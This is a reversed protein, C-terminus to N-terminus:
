EVLGDCWAPVEGRQRRDLRESLVGAARPNNRPRPPLCDAPLRAITWSPNRSPVRLGRAAWARRSTARGAVGGHGCPRAALVATTTYGGVATARQRHPDDTLAGGALRTLGALVALGDSVGEIAGLAAAPAQLTSTAPSPLLAALVEHGVDVLLSATGIRGGRPRVM